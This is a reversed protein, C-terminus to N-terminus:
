RRSTATSTEFAPLAAPRRRRRGDPRHRLARPGLRPLLRRRRVGAADGLARARDGDLQTTPRAAPISSTSGRADRDPGPRRLQRHDRQPGVERSLTKLWGTLAPRFTNSLALHTTPEQAALSTIAVIRGGPQAGPTPPLPPRADGRTAPAAPLGVRAVGRRRDRASGPPPGGGNWVLVDLGGFREVTPRSPGSSTPTPRERRRRRRRRRAAGRARHAARRAPRLPRRERGGRGAGRRERARPGVLRRLRACHAREARSGHDPLAGSSAVVRTTM